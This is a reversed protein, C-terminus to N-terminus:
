SIYVVPLPIDLLTSEILKSSKKLDWVFQRQFDPQIILKGRKFKGYLSDIEPDGQDTFIKRNSEQIDLSEIDEELPSDFALEDETNQNENNMCEENKKIALM